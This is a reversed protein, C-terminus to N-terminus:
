KGAPCLGDLQKIGVSGAVVHVKSVQKKTYLSRIFWGSPNKRLEFECPERSGWLANVLYDAKLRGQQSQRDLRGQIKLVEYGKREILTVGSSKEVDKLWFTDETGDSTKMFFGELTGSKNNVLASFNSVAKSENSSIRILPQVVMGSPVAAQSSVSLLSLMLTILALKV